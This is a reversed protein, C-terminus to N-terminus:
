ITSTPADQLLAYTLRTGVCLITGGCFYRGLYSATQARYVQDDRHHFGRKTFDGGLTGIYIGGTIYSIGDRALGRGLRCMTSTLKDRQLIAGNSTKAGLVRTLAGTELCAYRRENFLLTGAMRFRYLTVGNVRDGVLIVLGSAMFRCFSTFRGLISAITRINILDGLLVNSTMTAVYLTGFRSIEAFFLRLLSGYVTLSAAGSPLSLLVNLVSFRETSLPVSLESTTLSERERFPVSASSM